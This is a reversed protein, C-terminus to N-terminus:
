SERLEVGEDPQIVFFVKCQKRPARWPMALYENGCTGFYQLTRVCHMRLTLIGGKPRLRVLPICGYSHALGWEMASISLSNEERQM